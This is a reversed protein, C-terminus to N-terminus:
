TGKGPCTDTDTPHLLNDEAGWEEWRGGWPKGVSTLRQPCAPFPRGVVTMLFGTGPRGRPTAPSPEREWELAGGRRWM